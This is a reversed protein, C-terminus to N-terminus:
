VWLTLPLWLLISSTSLSSVDKLKKQVKVSTIGNWRRLLSWLTKFDLHLIIHDPPSIANLATDKLPAGGLDLDKSQLGPSKNTGLPSWAKLSQCSIFCLFLLCWFVASRQVVSPNPPCPGGVCDFFWAYKQSEGFKVVTTGWYGPSQNWSGRHNGFDVSAWTGKIFDHLVIHVTQERMWLNGGASRFCYKPDAKPRIWPTCLALQTNTSLFRCILPCTCNLNTTNLPCSYM